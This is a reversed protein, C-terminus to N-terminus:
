TIQCTAKVILTTAEAVVRKKKHHPLPTLFFSYHSYHSYHSHHSCGLRRIGIMRIMGM